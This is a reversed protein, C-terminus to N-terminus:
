LLHRSRCHQVIVELIDVENVIHVYELLVSGSCVGVAAITVLRATITLSAILSM